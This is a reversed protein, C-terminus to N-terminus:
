VAMGGMLGAVLLAMLIMGVAMGILFHWTSMPGVEAAMPSGAPGDVRVFGDNM